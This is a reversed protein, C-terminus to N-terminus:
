LGTRSTTAIKRRPGMFRPISRLETLPVFVGPRPSRRRRPSSRRRRTRLPRAGAADSLTANPSRLMSEIQRQRTRVLTRSLCIFPLLILSATGGWHGGASRAAGTAPPRIPRCSPALGYAGWPTTPQPTVLAVSCVRTTKQNTSRTTNTHVRAHMRSCVCAHMVTYMLVHMGAYMCAYTCVHMCAYMCLHTCAYMCAYMCAYV